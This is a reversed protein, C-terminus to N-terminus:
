VLMANAPLILSQFSLFKLLTNIIDYDTLFAIESFAQSMLFRVTNTHFWFTRKKVKIWIGRIPWDDIKQLMERTIFHNPLAYISYARKLDNETNIYKCGHSIRIINKLRRTRISGTERQAASSPLRSCREHFAGRPYLGSCCFRVIFNRLTSGPWTYM